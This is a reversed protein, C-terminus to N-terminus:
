APVSGQFYRRLLQNFCENQTLSYLVQAFRGHLDYYTPYIVQRLLQM